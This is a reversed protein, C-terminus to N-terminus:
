NSEGELLKLFQNLNPYEGQMEETLEGFLKRLERHLGLLEYKSFEILKRAVKM